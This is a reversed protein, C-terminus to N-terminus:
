GEAQETPRRLEASIEDEILARGSMGARLQGEANDVEAEIKVTRSSPDITAGMRSLTVDVTQG